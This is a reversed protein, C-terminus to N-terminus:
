EFRDSEIVINISIQWNQGYRYRYQPTLSRVLPSHTIACWSCSIYFVASFYKFNCFIRLKLGNRTKLLGTFLISKLHIAVVSIEPFILIKRPCGLISRVHGYQGVRTTWLIIIKMQQSKCHGTRRTLWCFRQYIKTKDTPFIYWNQLFVWWFIDVFWPSGRNTHLSCCTTNNTFVVRLWNHIMLLGHFGINCPHLLGSCVMITTSCILTCWPKERGQGGWPNRERELLSQLSHFTSRQLYHFILLTVSGMRITKGKGTKGGM